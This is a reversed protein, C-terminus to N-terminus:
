GALVGEVTCELHWEDPCIHEAEQFDPLCYATLEIDPLM